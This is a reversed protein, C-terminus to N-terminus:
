ESSLPKTNGGLIAGLCTTIIGIPASLSKTPDNMRWRNLINLQEVMGVNYMELFSVSNPLARNERAIDIPINAILKCCELINLTPDFDAVFEKQKNSVLESEFIGSKKDGISVFTKCENPINVLRPSIVMLSFGYNIPMECVDKVLEIDRVLKYDDTIIMYYPKYRHYDTGSLEMKGNNDKFKRAQMEKELELSIEKAEDLNTAFYRFSKNNDWCHPAVKLFSWKSENQENTM